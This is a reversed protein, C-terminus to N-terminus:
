IENPTYVAGLQNIGRYNARGHLACIKETPKSVFSVKDRGLYGSSIRRGSNTQFQIYNITDWLRSMGVNMIIISEDDNFYHPSSYLGNSGHTVALGSSWEMRYGVLQFLFNTYFTIKSIGYEPVISNGDDFLRGENTGLVNDSYRLTPITTTFRRPQSPITMDLILRQNHYKENDITIRGSTTSQITRSRAIPWNSYEREYQMNDYQVISAQGEIPNIEFQIVHGDITTYTMIGNSQFVNPNNTMVQEQFTVFDINNTHNLLSNPELIEILGYTDAKMACQGFDCQREYVAMYYGFNPCIVEKTNKHDDEMTENRYLNWFTWDGISVSCNSRIDDTGIRNGYDLQLGCVFNPAVCLNQEKAGEEVDRHGIFRVMDNIRFDYPSSSRPIIATPRSWGREDDTILNLLYSVVFTNYIYRLRVNFRQVLPRQIPTIRRNGINSSTGHGGSSLLVKSTSAYIEAVQTKGVFYNPNTATPTDTKSLTTGKRQETDNAATTHYFSPFFLDLIIPDMRYTSQTTMICETRGIEPFVNQNGILIGLRQYEGDGAWSQPISVYQPQRRFPVFRRLHDSQVTNYVTIMDLLNQTAIKINNDNSFTHLLNIAAVTAGQYPKANYEYFQDQNMFTSLFYLLKKTNGNADNNYLQDYVRLGPYYTYYLQNILYRAVHNMLTHNETDDIQLYINFAEKKPFFFPLNRIQCPLVYSSTPADNSEFKGTLGVSLMVNELVYQAAPSIIQNSTTTNTSNTTDTSNDSPITVDQRDQYQRITYSLLLLDMLAFDYDGDRHCQIQVESQGLTFIGNNQSSGGTTRASTGPAAFPQTLPHLFIEDFDHYTPCQLVMRAISRAVFNRVDNRSNFQPNTNQYTVFISSTDNSAPISEFDDETVNPDPLPLNAFYILVQLTRNDLQEMAEYM